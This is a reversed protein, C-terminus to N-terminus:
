MMKRIIPDASFQIKREGRMELLWSWMRKKGGSNIGRLHSLSETTTKAEM